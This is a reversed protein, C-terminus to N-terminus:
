LRASVVLGGARAVYGYSTAKRRALDAEAADRERTDERLAALDRPQITGRVAQRQLERREHDKLM